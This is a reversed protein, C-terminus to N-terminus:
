FAGGVFRRRLRSRLRIASLNLMLVVIVLVLTTTWVLPRAAESDPSQFGVDYIHFGLHMFSRELHVFPFRGDVPLEPALKVVGVLMLPAVEGAGRAMALIMGTMIGPMARPLVIRRVTQWKSAGCGYSGERMTRPVAAIAEETAVIVVPLTLLALTLASWLLGRSRFVSNPLSSEYLGTFYPTTLLLWVAGVAAAVWLSGAGWAMARQGRTAASGPTPRAFLGLWAAGVGTCVLALVGVWWSGRSAVSAAAPGTDVYEGVFYCFFGLGFVGYVISPVGALNNVAIRVISIVMGQKAYERMYLAAVVGLPVVIISLLITLSVTGFIVPFIGGATNTERPEDLLFERWREIYVGIKGAFTLRNSEIGLVVQSLRLPEDPETQRLPAITGGTAERVLIRMKSDEADIARIRELISEYERNLAETRQAYEARVEAMREETMNPAAWPRELWAGLLAGLGICWAAASMMRMGIRDPKGARQARSRSASLALGAGIAGLGIGTIAFWNHMALPSKRGSQTRALAIEAERLRLREAELRHNVEGVDHKQMSLVRAATARSVPHMTRFAEWTSEGEILFTWRRVRIGGEPSEGLVRQEFRQGDATRGEALAEAGAPLDVIEQRVIAEPVGIWVGWDLRELLVARPEPAQEAISYLPVWRFPEGVERNGVRYLRRVPRGERDLVGPGIQGAARLAAIAAADDAGADYSEERVPVGLLAEGTRLVVRDIPRPWFTRTGMVATLVLLTVIMLTCVVMAMGTIWVVPEGRASLPTARRAPRNAASPNHPATSM